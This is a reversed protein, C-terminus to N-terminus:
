SAIEAAILRYRREGHTKESALKLGKQKVLTGSLFGRVSHAQWGTANMLEDISAGKARRLLATIKESKTVTPKTDNHRRHKQPTGGNAKTENHQQQTASAM